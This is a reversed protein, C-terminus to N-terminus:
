HIKTEPTVEMKGIALKYLQIEVNGAATLKKQTKRACQEVHSKTAGEDKRDM